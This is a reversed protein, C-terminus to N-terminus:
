TTEETPRVEEEDEKERTQLEKALEEALILAAEEHETGSKHISTPRIEKRKYEEPLSIDEGNEQLFNLVQRLFGHLSVSRHKRIGFGGRTYSSYSNDESTTEGRTSRREPEESDSDRKNKLNQGQTGSESEEPPQRRDIEDVESAFAPIAKKAYPDPLLDIGSETAILEIPPHNDSEPDLSATVLDGDFNEHYEVLTTGVPEEALLQSDGEHLRQILESFDEEPPTLSVIDIKELEEKILEQLQSSCDISGASLEPHSVVYDAVAKAEAEHLGQTRGYEILWERLTTHDNVM